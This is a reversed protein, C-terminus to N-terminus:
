RCYHYGDLFKSGSPHPIHAEIGYIHLTRCQHSRGSRPSKHGQANHQHLSPSKSVKPVASDFFADFNPLPVPLTWPSSEPLVRSRALRLSRPATSILALSGAILMYAPHFRRQYTCTTRIHVPVLNINIASPSPVSKIM